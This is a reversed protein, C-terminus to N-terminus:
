IESERFIYANEKHTGVYVDVCLVGGFWVVVGFWGGEWVCVGSCWFGKWM